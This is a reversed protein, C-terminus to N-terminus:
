SRHEATEAGVWSLYAPLGKHIPVAIIEPLEYPHAETLAAQLAPYCLLSTKILLPVETATEINDQWRYVSTCPALINVCAALHQEVLLRAIRQASDADPLSTLVLLIEDTSTM